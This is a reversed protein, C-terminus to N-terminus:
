QKKIPKENNDMHIARLILMYVAVDLCREDFEKDTFFVGPKYLTVIHKKVYDLLTCAQVEALTDPNSLDLQPNSLAAGATFNYLGDEDGGYAGNKKKFLERIIVLDNSIRRGLMERNM